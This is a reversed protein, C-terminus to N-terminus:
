VAAMTHDLPDLAGHAPGIRLDHLGGEDCHEQRDEAGTDHGHAREAPGYAVMVHPLQEYQRRGVRGGKITPHDAALACVWRDRILVESELQPVSDFPALVLDIKGSQVGEMMDESPPVFWFSVAPALPEVRELLPELLLLTAYDATVITFARADRAPDFTEASIMQEVRSLVEEVQGLLREARPTLKYGRGIRLLLEDAFLDRLRSLAASMAPQSLGVAIGARTVNKEVLLARLALLLNLDLQSLRM